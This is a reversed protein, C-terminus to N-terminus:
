VPCYMISSETHGLEVAAEATEPPWPLADALSSVQVNEPSLTGSRFFFYSKLSPHNKPSIM